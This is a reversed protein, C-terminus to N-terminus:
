RPPNAQTSTPQWPELTGRDDASQGPIFRYFKHEQLGLDQILRRPTLRGTTRLILPGGDTITTPRSPTWYKFGKEKSGQFKKPLFIVANSDEELREAVVSQPASRLHSEEM